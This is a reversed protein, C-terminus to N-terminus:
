ERKKKKKKQYMQMNDYGARIIFYLIFKFFFFFSTVSYVLILYQLPYRIFNSFTVEETFSINGHMWYVPPKAPQETEKDKSVDNVKNESIDFIVAAQDGNVEYVEGRQGKKLVRFLTLIRKSLISCFSM